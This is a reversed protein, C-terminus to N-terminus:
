IKLEKPLSFKFIIFIGMVLLSISVFIGMRGDRSDIYASYGPLIMRETAFLLVFLVGSVAAQAKAQLSIASHRDHLRRELKLTRRFSQLVKFSQSPNERCYLILSLFDGRNQDKTPANRAQETMIWLRKFQFDRACLDRASAEFSIGSTMGAILADVFDSVAFKQRNKMQDAHIKALSAGVFGAVAIFLVNKTVTYACVCMFVCAISEFNRAHVCEARSFNRILTRFAFLIAIFTLSIKAFSM